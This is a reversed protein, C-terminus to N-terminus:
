GISVRREGLGCASEARACRHSVAQECEYKDYKDYKDYTCM